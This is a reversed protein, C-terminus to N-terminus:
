RTLTMLKGAHKLGRAPSGGGGGICGIGALNGLAVATALGKTGLAAVLTMRGDAVAM